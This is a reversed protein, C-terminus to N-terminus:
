SNFPFLRNLFREVATALATKYAESEIKRNLKQLIIQIDEKYDINQMLEMAVPSSKIALKLYEFKILDSADTNTIIIKKFRKEFKEFTYGEGNFRPLRIKDVPMRRILKSPKNLEDEIKNKLRHLQKITDVIKNTIEGTTNLIKYSLDRILEEILEICYYEYKRNNKLELYILETKEILEAIEKEQQSIIISAPEPQQDSNEITTDITPSTTTTTTTFTTTATMTTTITTTSDM